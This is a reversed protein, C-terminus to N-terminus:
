SVTDVADSAVGTVTPEVAETTTTAKEGPDSTDQQSKPKSQEKKAAYDGQLVFSSSHFSAVTRRTSPTSSSARALCHCQTESARSSGLISSAVLPRDVLVTCLRTQSRILANSQTNIRQIVTSLM